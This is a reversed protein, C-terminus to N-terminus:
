WSSDTQSDKHTHLVLTRPPNSTLSLWTETMTDIHGEQSLSKELQQVNKPHPEVLPRYNNRDDLLSQVEKIRDQRNVIVTVTGKAAKKLVINEKRTLDKLARRERHPLNDKPRRVQVNALSIKVEELYSELTVSPQIPPIWGSKVHFPHPNSNGGHFICQLHMRRTVQGFDRM